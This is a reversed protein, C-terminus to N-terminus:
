KSTVQLCITHLYGQSTKLRRQYEITVLRYSKLIEKKMSDHCDNDGYCSLVVMREPVVWQIPTQSTNKHAQPATNTHSYDVSASQTEVTSNGFIAKFGFVGLPTQSTILGVGVLLFMLLVAIKAFNGDASKRVVRKDKMEGSSSFWSSVDEAPESEQDEFNAEIFFIEEPPLGNNSPQEADGMGKEWGSIIEELSSEGEDRQQSKYAERESLHPQFASGTETGPDGDNNNNPLDDNAM